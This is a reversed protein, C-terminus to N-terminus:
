LLMEDEGWIVVICKTVLDRHGMHAKCKGVNEDVQNTADQTEGNARLRSGEMFKRQGLGAPCLRGEELSQHDKVAMGCM